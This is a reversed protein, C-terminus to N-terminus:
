KSPKEWEKEKDSMSKLFEMISKMFMLLFIILVPFVTFLLVFYMMSVINTISTGFNFVELAKIGFGGGIMMIILGIINVFLKLAQSWEQEGDISNAFVFLLAITGIIILAVAILPTGDEHLLGDDTIVFTGSAFGSEDSGSCWILYPFNGTNSTLSSNVSLEWEVDEFTMNQELIHNGTNNYIHVTCFEVTTNTMATGTSNFVHIHLDGGLGQPIAPNKPYIINLVGTGSSAQPTFPPEGFVVVVSLIAILCVIFATKKMIRKM